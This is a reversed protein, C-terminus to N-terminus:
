FHFYVFGYIELKHKSKLENCEFYKFAMFKSNTSFELCFYTYIFKSHVLFPVPHVSLLEKLMSLKRCIVLIVNFSLQLKHTHGLASKKLLCADYNDYTLCDSLYLKKAYLVIRYDLQEEGTPAQVFDSKVVLRKHLKLIGTHIDISILKM